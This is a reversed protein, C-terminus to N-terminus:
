FDEVPLNIERKLLIKVEENSEIRAEKGKQLLFAGTGIGLGTGAGILAGRGKDVLAGFLTGILTGGGILAANSASSSKEPTNLTILEGDIKRKTGDPLRITQFKVEFSGSKKGFGASRVKVIQGEVITGIPLVEIERNTVPKSVTLTFTDNVSSVKSNIENDMRAYIQTGVPLLYLSQSYVSNVFLLSLILGFIKTINKLINM